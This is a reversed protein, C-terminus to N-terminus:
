WVNGAQRKVCQRLRLICISRTQLILVRLIERNHRDSILGYLRALSYLFLIRTDTFYLYGDYAGRSFGGNASPSGALGDTFPFAKLQEAIRNKQGWRLRSISFASFFAFLFLYLSYVSQYNHRRWGTTTRVISLYIFCIYAFFSFLIFDVGRM